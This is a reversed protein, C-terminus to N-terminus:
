KKDLMIEIDAEDRLQEIYKQQALQQKVQDKIEEFSMQYQGQNYFEKAEQDSIDVKDLVVTEILKRVKLNEKQQKLFAEKFQDMSEIGQQGLAKLLDEDSMNQQQKIMQVQENFYEEKDQKALNIKKREVERQLLKRVILNDLQNIKFAALFDQGEPSNYLFSVFQPNQQQIQLMIQQLNAMRNLEEMYIANGDITAVVEKEQQESQQQDAKFASASVSFMLVSILLCPILNIKNSKM